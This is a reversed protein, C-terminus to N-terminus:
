VVVIVVTDVLTKLLAGGTDVGNLGYVSVDTVIVDEMGPPWIVVEISVAVKIVPLVANIGGEDVDGGVPWVGAVSVPEVAILVLPLNVIESGSGSVPGALSLIVVDIRRLESSVIPVM